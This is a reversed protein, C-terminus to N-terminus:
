PRFVAKILDTEFEVESLKEILQKEATAEAFVKELRSKVPAALPGPLPLRGVAAGVPRFGDAGSDLKIDYSYTVPGIDYDRVTWPGLEDVVRLTLSGPTVGVTLSQLGERARFTELYANVDGARLTASTEAGAQLTARVGSLQGRLRAAGARSVGEQLPPRPWFALAGAAVVIVLLILLIWKVMRGASASRKERSVNGSTMQSMDLKKGCNGCFIRGLENDHGCAQCTIKM